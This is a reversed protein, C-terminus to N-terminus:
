IKSSKKVRMVFGSAVMAGVGLALLNFWPSGTKPLKGGTVTPPPTPVPTGPIVPAVLPPLETNTQIVTIDDGAKVDIFNSAQGSIDFSNIYQSFLPGDVEGVVYTGPAVIYAHGPAAMGVDPSGAVDVGWHRLSIQFDGPTATGGYLNKVVKIVHITATTVTPVTPVVVPVIPVVAAATCIFTQVALLPVAGNYLQIIVPGATAATTTVTITKATQVWNIAPIIVGGVTINSIATPFSGNLVVTTPGSAVCAAPTVSDITSSQVPAPQVVVAPACNDNTIANDDLTVALAAMLSGAVSTGTQVTISAQAYIHGVFTANTGLTASSQVAWFVNCAQASGTLSISSSNAISLTSTTTFVFIANPDGGGNLTLHGGNLAGAGLAYAGAGLTLGDLPTGIASPSQGTNAAAYANAGATMANQAVTDQDHLVGALGPPFGTPSPGGKGGYLSGATGSIVTNGTNTITQALVGFSSASGLNVKTAAMSISPPLVIYIATAVALTAASRRFFKNM